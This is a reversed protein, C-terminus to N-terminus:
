KSNKSKFIVEEINSTKVVIAPMTHIVDLLGKASIQYARVKTGLTQLCVMENCIM